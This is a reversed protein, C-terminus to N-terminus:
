FGLNNAHEKSDEVFIKQPNMEKQVFRSLEQPNKELLGIGAVM